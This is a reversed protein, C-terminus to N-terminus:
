FLLVYILKSSRQRTNGTLTSLLRAVMGTLSPPGGGLVQSQLQQQQQQQLCELILVLSVMSWM